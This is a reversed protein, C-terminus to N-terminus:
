STTDDSTPYAGDAAGATGLHRTTGADEASLALMTLGLGAETDTVDVTSVDSGAQSRRVASVVGDREGSSIPGAVVAGKGTEDLASALSAVISGAGRRQDVTGAPDGAVILVLGGRRQVPEETVVLEATTLSAMIEGGVDDVGRGGPQETAVAYGLLRGLREYGDATSPIKVTEGVSARMRAGLEEVLQRNAVDVLQDGVSVRAAITAGLSSALSALETVQDEEASPLTVLTISRGQLLGEPVARSRTARAYEDNFADAERLRAVETEVEALAAADTTGDGDDDSSRQLPGGGLVIGVALALFVAVLSVVHSRFSIM